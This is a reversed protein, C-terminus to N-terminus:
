DKRGSLAKLVLPYDTTKLEVANAVAFRALIAKTKDRGHVIFHQQLAKRIDDLDPKRETTPPKIMDALDDNDGMLDDSFDGVPDLFDLADTEPKEDVKEAPPAEPLAPVSALDAAKKPRGRRKPKETDEADKTVDGTLTERRHTVPEQHAPPEAPAATVLVDVSNEALHKQLREVHGPKAAAEVVSHEGFIQSLARLKESVERSPKSGDFSIKVKM